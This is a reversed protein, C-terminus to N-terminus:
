RTMRESKVIVSSYFFIMVGDTFIKQKYHPPGNSIINLYTVSVRTCLTHLILDISRSVICTWVFGFQSSVSIYKEVTEEQRESVHFFVVSSWSTEWIRGNLFFYEVLKERARWWYMAKIWFSDSCNGTSKEGNLHYYKDMFLMYLIIKCYFQAVLTNSINDFRIQLM